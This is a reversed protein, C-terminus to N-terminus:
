KVETLVLIRLNRLFKTEEVDRNHVKEFICMNPLVDLASISVPNNGEEESSPQLFASDTYPLNM